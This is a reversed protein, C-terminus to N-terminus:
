LMYSQQPLIPPMRPSPIFNTHTSGNWFLLITNSHRKHILLHQVSINLNTLNVELL